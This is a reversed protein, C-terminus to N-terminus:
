VGSGNLPRKMGQQESKSKYKQKLWEADETRKRDIADLRRMFLLFSIQEMATLPNAIGGSWLKDWLQDVKSKITANLM